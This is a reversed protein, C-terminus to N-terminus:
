RIRSIVPTRMYPRLMGLARKSFRQPREGTNDLKINILGAFAVQSAQLEDLDHRLEHLAQEMQAQKIATLADEDTLDIVITLESLSRYATLLSAAKIDTTAGTWEDAHLRDAFYADADAVSVFSNYGTTPYATLSM